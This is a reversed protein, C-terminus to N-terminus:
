NPFTSQCLRLLLSPAPLYQVSLQPLCCLGASAPFIPIQLQPHHRGPPPSSTPIKNPTLAYCLQNPPPAQGLSSPAFLLFLCFLGKAEWYHKATPNAERQQARHFRGWTTWCGCHESSVDWTHKGLGTPSPVGCCSPSTGLHMLGMPNDEGQLARACTNMHLVTTVVRCQSEHQGDLKILAPFMKVDGTAHILNMAGDKFYGKGRAVGAVNIGMCLQTKM